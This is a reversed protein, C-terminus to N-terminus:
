HGREARLAGRAEVVWTHTLLASVTVPGRVHLRGTSISIESGLGLTPGDHLRLSGNVVVAAADVGRTFREVVDGDASVVGETHASGYRRVHEVAADVGTVPLVGITPELFERGLDHPALEAIRVGGGPRARLGGGLKLTVDAGTRVLEGVFDEAVHEDVLVLELTNCASPEALKSDLAIAAARALDASGHVYLHNVGGGSAIVPVSGASRCHDILAPSGRPILVDVADPRRLLERLVSRDPDEVVSVLGAPLGASVLAGHVATALAADTDAMEKGGRLLVSNGVVVPILAGEVTVTPRAEYVMFVVGLPKAVRRLEGWDGIPVPPAPATAPGLEATVADILRLLGDLHGETLRLREVLVPSLGRREARAVDEANAKLVLPWSDTLHEALAGCYRRYAPDGVPPAARLAARASSLLQETM